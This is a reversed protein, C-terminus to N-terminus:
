GPSDQKGGNPAQLGSRIWATPDFKPLLANRHVRDGSYGKNRNETRNSSVGGDRAMVRLWAHPLEDLIAEQLAYLAVPDAVLSALAEDSLVSVGRAFVERDRLRSRAAIGATAPGGALAAADRIARVYTHLL